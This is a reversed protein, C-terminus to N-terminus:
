KKKRLDKVRTDYEILGKGYSYSLDIEVGLEDYSEITNLIRQKAKATAIPTITKLIGDVVADFMHIPMSIGIEGRDFGGYARAGKCMLSVNIDNTNFPKSILDSCVASNGFFNLQKPSGFKYAYGQMVRMITEAYDVVIVIDADLIRELPAMVFGYVDMDIYQLSKAIDKGITATESLGCYQFSRGELITSDVKELGLGFAGYDCVVDDRKAKFYEGDMAHRSHGCISAKQKALPIDLADFDEKFDILKVGIVHHELGLAITVKKVNEVKM